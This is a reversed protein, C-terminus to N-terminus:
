QATSRNVGYYEAENREMQVIHRRTHPTIFYLYEYVNIKGLGNVSMTTKHLVGEGNKLSELTQLCHTVQQRLQERVESLPKTGTPEMHDPRMWAFTGPQGIERLKKHNITAAELETQLDLGHVNQLAKAAGKNVLILLFHNTLGIHELLEDITWGGSAPRYARLDAAKEFWKDAATFSTTLREWLDASVEQIDM